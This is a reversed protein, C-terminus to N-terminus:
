FGLLGNGYNAADDLAQRPTKEGKLCILIEKGLCDMVEDYNRFTPIPKAWDLQKIFARMGPHQNQYEFYASCAVIQKNVPIYSTALFFERLQKFEVLWLLFDFGAEEHDPNSKTMALSQIYLDSARVDKKPLYVAEVNMGLEQAHFYDHSNGFIMGAQGVFFGEPSVDTSAIQYKQYLDQLFQLTTVGAESNFAFKGEPSLLSGDKKQRMMAIFFAALDEPSEDTPLALGVRGEATEMLPKGTKVLDFWGQPSKDMKLSYLMDLNVILANNTCTYPFTWFQNDHLASQFLVKYTDQKYAAKLGTGINLTHVQLSTIVGKAILEDQWRNDILVTDPLTKASFLANKLEKMSAFKKPEIIVKGKKEKNYKMILEEMKISGKENLNYWFTVVEPKKQAMALSIVSLLFLLSLSIVFYKM